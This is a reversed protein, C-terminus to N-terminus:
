VDKEGRSIKLIEVVQKAIHFPVPYTKPDIEFGNKNYCIIKYEKENKM